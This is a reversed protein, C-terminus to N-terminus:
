TGFGKCVAGHIGQQTYLLIRLGKVMQWRRLYKNIKMNCIHKKSGMRHLEPLWWDTDNGEQLRRLYPEIQVPIDVRMEAKRSTIKARNYVWRNGPFPKAVYLDALNVGMLGFSM